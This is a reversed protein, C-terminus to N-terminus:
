KLDELMWSTEDLFEKLAIIHKCNAGSKRLRFIWHPCSCEWRKKYRNHAVVYSEKQGQTFSFIEYRVAHHNTPELIGKFFKEAEM